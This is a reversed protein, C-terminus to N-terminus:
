LTRSGILFMYFIYIKQVATDWIQARITQGNKLAFSRFSFDMGITPKYNPNFDDKVYRSVISTKGVSAEGSFFFNYFITLVWVLLACKSRKTM